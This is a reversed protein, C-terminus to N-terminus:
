GEISKLKAQLDKIDQKYKTISSKFYTKSPIGLAPLNNYTKKFYAIKMIAFIIFPIAFVFAVGTFLLVIGIVLQHWFAKRKKEDTEWQKIRAKKEEIQKKMDQINRAEAACRAQREEEAYERELAPLMEECQSLREACDRYDLNVRFFNMASVVAKYRNKRQDACASNYCSQKYLEESREQAKKALIASDKYDSISEFIEVASECDISDHSEYLGKAKQYTNELNKENIQKIIAHLEDALSDSFRVIKKYNINDNFPTKLNALQSKKKVKLDVMLKGLYAEACQVDIDLIKDSYEEASNFDGDELFMFMRNVLNATGATPAAAPAQQYVVQPAKPEDKKIVKKIGRVIDNVFGIKSMDQAQFHAFEEPLEYADMDRYCPILLKTRDSKMIKLYRSWENKVWVANFYEPKTGVALMVKASNLAAFIVPEYQSGLKDELTIAAYFVKFGEAELQYYIDNALASDMTRKGNEDTEKYCIFVDYPEEKNSIELIEKQINDIIKADTEYIRRQIVDAYKVAMKYNEDTVIADYSTRHCTPIRKMTAPDEVYEIGFKCLILGWYAESDESNKEVIKEYIAEAKDFECRRRLANARDYLALMDEDNTSPVTQKTGCYLCECVLSDKEFELTGGCMKCKLIAM